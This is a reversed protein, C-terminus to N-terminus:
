KEPPKQPRANRAAMGQRPQVSEIPITAAPEGSPQQTANFQPDTHQAITSSPLPNAMADHSTVPVGEPVEFTGGVSIMETM